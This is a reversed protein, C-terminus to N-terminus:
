RRAVSPPWPGTSWREVEAADFEAPLEPHQRRYCADLRWRGDLLDRRVSVYTVALPDDPRAPNPLRLLQRTADEVRDLEAVDAGIVARGIARRRLDDPLAFTAGEPLAELALELRELEASTLWRLPDFKATEAPPLLRAAAAELEALRRATASTM